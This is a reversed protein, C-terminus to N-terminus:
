FYIINTKLREDSYNCDCTCSYNCNCTCYNCDCTCYNCNCTCAYNCNCTCAYNCNCPCVSEINAKLQDKMAEITVDDILQSSNIQSNTYPYVAPAPSGSTGIIQLFLDRMERIDTTEVNGGLPPLSTYGRRGAEVNIQYLFENFENQLDIVEGAIVEVNTFNVPRSGVYGSHSGCSNSHSHCGGINNHSHCGGSNTNGHCAM